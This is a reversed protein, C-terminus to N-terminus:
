EIPFLTSESAKIGLSKGIVEAAAVRTTHSSPSYRGSMWNRVTLECVRLTSVLDYRLAARREVSLGASIEPLTRTDRLIEKNSQM